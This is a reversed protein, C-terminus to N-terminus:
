ITASANAGAVRGFVFVDAISCSGLRNDGMKHGAVEGAAFLNPIPTGAEDLVQADPNIHLGGMTYHVSPKFVMIYYPGGDIANLKGRYNFDTDKGAACFGNWKDITKQLEAADIGFPACAEELTDGKVLKGRSTLNEVESANVQFVQTSDVEAQNFVMYGVGDTQKTVANSIVDRRELEEVFRDGERNVCIAKQNLRMNGVYLLGGTEVDCTPYTQIYQMDILGAGIASAMVLGDGTAGISDTSLISEDMAPNYKVRMEVNSGFGGCALVVAKADFTFEQGGITDTARIGCVAGSADTLLEEAKMNCVITLGDIETSRKDLKTILESGEQGAPVLSRAVSHGGFFQEYSQWAVGGEFTLWEMAGYAGEAIVQVLAPDGINDGGVLMDHALKEVSDEIGDRKQFWNGPVSIAGGSLITDGGTIGLKEVMLTNRGSQAATIATAYGAGGSGVVIVDYSTALDEPLETVVKARKKWDASDEGADDLADAVALKFAGSSLTAGAVTDINLTQGSVMLDSLIQIARTGVGKSEASRLVNVRQLVGDEIIVELEVKGGKGVSSGTGSVARDSTEQTGGACGSMVLSSGGLAAIGAGVLFQRRSVESM